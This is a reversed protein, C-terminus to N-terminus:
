RGLRVMRGSRRAGDATIEYFLLGSAVERGREDRGDWRIEHSGATLHQDLKRILRGGADFVRVGVPGTARTSFRFATATSFPNPATGLLQLRGGDDPSPVSTTSSYRM